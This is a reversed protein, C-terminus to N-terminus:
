RMKLLTSKTCTIYSVHTLLSLATTPLNLPFNSTLMSASYWRCSQWVTSPYSDTFFISERADAGCYRSRYLNTGGSSIYSQPYFCVLSLIIRFYKKIAADTTNNTAETASNLGTSAAPGFHPPIQVEFLQPLPQEHKSIDGPIPTHPEVAGRGGSGVGEWALTCYSNM